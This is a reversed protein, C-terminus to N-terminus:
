SRRSAAPQMIRGASPSATMMFSILRHNSIAVRHTYRALYNLVHEARFPPLAYVVWDKSFLRSGAARGPSRWDRLADDGDCSADPQRNCRDAPRGRGPQTRDASRTSGLFRSRMPCTLVACHASSCFGCRQRRGQLRELRFSATASGISRTSAVHDPGLQEPSRHTHRVGGGCAPLVARHESYNRRQLEDLMLQRLHTM